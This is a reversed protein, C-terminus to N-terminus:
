LHAANPDLLQSSVTTIYTGVQHYKQTKLEEEICQWGLNPYDHIIANRMGVAGRMIEIAPDTIALLEYTREIAARAESQVPKQRSKLYHKSCGVAVEVLVQLGREAANRETFTLPRQALTDSLQDLGELHQEAQERINSERAKGPKRNHEHEFKYEEWLSWVRQQETRLRLDSKCYLVVGEAVVNQALPVPITNIDVVSLPQQLQNQLEYELDQTITRRVEANLSEDMAIALDYDSARTATGTARSGYLWAVVVHHHNGLRAAIQAREDNM